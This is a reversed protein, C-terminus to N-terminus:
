TEGRLLSVTREWRELTAAPDNLPFRIGRELEAYAARHERVEAVRGSFCALELGDITAHGLPRADLRITYAAGDGVCLLTARGGRELNASTGSGAHLALRIETSSIALVEGVSLLALRPWGDEGVSSLVLTEGVKAPLEAGELLRAVNPPLRDSM